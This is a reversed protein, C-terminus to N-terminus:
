RQRRAEIWREISTNSEDGVPLKWGHRTLPAPDIKPLTSASATVAMAGWTEPDLADATPRGHDAARAPPTVSNTFNQLIAQLDDSGVIGDLIGDPGSVDGQSLDGVPVQRTFNALVIQLDNVGVTFDGDLDGLITVILRPATVTFAAAANTADAILATDHSQGTVIEFTYVGLAGPQIEYDVRILGDRHDVAFPSATFNVTGHYYETPLRDTNGGANLPDPATAAPSVTAQGGGTLAVQTGAGPGELRVRVSYNLLSVSSGDDTDLVIDVSGTGAAFDPTTVVRDQGTLTITAAAGQAPARQPAAAPLVRGLDARLPQKDLDDVIADGDLDAFISYAPDGASAGLADRVPKIDFITAAGDRDVDARAADFRFEFDGGATLDGSPFQSVGDVWEGDLAAASDTATVNADDLVLLLRDTALPSSLTWVAQFAGAPGTETLFGSFAYDDNADEVGDPGLTGRLLLDSQVVNVPEDFRIIVQDADTWPLPDLQAVSGVPIAYGRAGGSGAPELADLFAGTWATGGILVSTVRPPLPVVSVTGNSTASGGDGDTVDLTVTFQGGDSPVWAVTEGVLQTTAGANPGTTLEITWTFTLPDAAGAPDTAAASLNQSTGEMGTASVNFQTITPDLNDVLVTETAIGADGDDDNVTVTATFSGSPSDDLYTHMLTFSQGTAAGSGYSLTQVNTPSTPDDWDVELTFTDTIGVDSFSGTLTATGTENITTVPDLLVAPAVGEVVLRQQAANEFLTGGTTMLDVQITYAFNDGYGHTVDGSSTFSEITGDGWNVIIEDVDAAGPGTVQGLTLTYTQQEMVTTAGSIAITPAIVANVVVPQVGFTENADAVVFYDGDYAFNTFVLLADNVGGSDDDAALENGDRDILRVVPDILSNGVTRDSRLAATLADGPAASIRFFDLDRDLGNAIAGTLSAARTNAILPVLSGALDNAFPLDAAGVGAVGDDNAESEATLLDSAGPRNITTTLAYTGVGRIMSVGDAPDLVLETDVVLYYSGDATVNFTLEADRNGEAIDDNQALEAGTADVLTLKPDELTGLGGDVGSLTATISEGNLASVRYFDAFDTLADIRANFLSRFDRNGIPVFNPDLNEALALDAVLIGDTGDDNPENEGTLVNPADADTLELDLRYAGTGPRSTGDEDIVSVAITYAGANQYTHTAQSVVGVTEMNGDGWEIEFGTPTEDGPDIVSGLELTYTAGADVTEAGTVDVTPAINLVTVDLTTSVSHTADEDVVQVTITRTADGDSYQHSAVLADFRLPSSRVHDVTLTYDGTISGTSAIVVYATLDAAFSSFELMGTSTESALMTPAGTAGPTWIEIEPATLAGSVNITLTDGDAVAVRYFDEDAASGISGTVSAGYREGAGTYTSDLTFAGRLDDAVELDAQLAGATGDDNPEGETTIADLPVNLTTSAGDGWAVVVQAPFDRGPDVLDSIALNLDNGEEVIPMSGQETTLVVDPTVNGINVNLPTADHTGEEDTATASITFAGDDVYLHTVRVAAGGFLQPVSGDGWDILWSQLTDDGPDSASLDFALLTGEDAASGDTSIGLTPAVDNVAITKQASYTGDRDTLSATITAMGDADNDAYTHEVTGSAGELASTTNDGWNIIWRAPATGLDLGNASLMLSYPTGESASDSGTLAPMPVVDTVVIQTLLERFGGDKDTITGLVPVALAGNNLLTAPVTFARNDTGEIADTLDITGDNGVDLSLTFMSDASSPDSVGTFSVTAAESETVADGTLTGTPAANEVVLTVTSFNPTGPPSDFPILGIAEPFGFTTRADAFLDFTYTGDDNIGVSGLQAWTITFAQGPTATFDATGGMSLDEGGFEVLVADADTSRPTFVLDQGESITIPDADVTPVPPMITVGVQDSFSGDDNVWSVDLTVFGNIQAFTHTFVFTQGVTAVNGPASLPALTDMTGDDWTLTVQSVPDDGPDLITLPVQFPSGAVVDFVEGPLSARAAEDTVTLTGHAVAVDNISDTVRVSIPYVGDDDIPVAGDATVAVIREWGTMGGSFSFVPDEGTADDFLGDGDLDWEVSTITTNPQKSGPIPTSAFSITSRGEGATAAALTVRTPVFGPIDEFGDYILTGVGTVTATGLPDSPQNISHPNGDTNDPLNVSGIAGPDLTDMGSVGHAQADVTVTAGVAIGPMDIFAHDDFDGLEASVSSTAALETIEFLDTGNGTKVTTTVGPIAMAIRVTQPQSDTGLVSNVHFTGGSGTFGSLTITDAGADGNLTALTAAGVVGSANITDADAGASVTVTGGLAGSLGIVDNGAGANVTYPASFGGLALNDAGDGTNVTVSGTAPATTQFITDAAAGTNVTVAEVNTFSVGHTLSSPTGDIPLRAVGQGGGVHLETDTAALGRADGISTVAKDLLVQQLTGNLDYAALTDKVSSAVFVHSGNAVMAMPADLGTVGPSGEILTALHSFGPMPPNNIGTADVIDLRDDTQSAVFLTSGSHAMSVDGEGIRLASLFFPGGFPFGPDFTAGLVDNDAGPVDVAVYPLFFGSQVVEIAKIRNGSGAGPLDVSGQSVADQLDHLKTAEAVWLNRVGQREWGVDISPSTTAFQAPTAGIGGAGNIEFIAAGTTTTVAVARNGGNHSFASLRSGATIGFGSVSDIEALTTPNLVRLTGTGDIGYLFGADGVMARLDFDPFLDPAGKSPSLMARQGDTTTVSDTDITATVQGVAEEVTLTDTSPTSGAKIKVEDAGTTRMFPLFDDTGNGDRDFRLAGVDTMWKTAVTSAANDVELLEVWVRLDDYLTGHIAAGPSAPVSVDVVDDGAGGVVDTRAGIEVVDVRDHGGQGEILLPMAVDTNITITEDFASGTVQVLGLGTMTVDTTGQVYNLVNGTQDTPEDQLTASVGATSGSLDVVLVDVAGGTVDLSQNVGTVTVLAEGAGSMDITTVLNSMQDINLTYAASVDDRGTLNVTPFGNHTITSGVSSAISTGSLHITAAASRGAEDFQVLDGSGGGGSLSLPAQVADITLANGALGDGLTVTDDGGRLNITTPETLSRVILNDSGTTDGLDLTTQVVGTADLAVHQISSRTSTPSALLQSGQLLWTNTSASGQNDHTFGVTEVNVTTLRRGDSSGTSPGVMTVDVTEAGALDRGGDVLLHRDISSHTVSNAAVGLELRVTEVTANFTPDTPTGINAVSTNGVSISPRATADNRAAYVITDAGGDGSVSVAGAIGSLVGAGVTMTDDGEGGNVAATSTTTEVILADSGGGGALLVPASATRVTFTDSASGGTVATAASFTSLVTVDGGASSQSVDITLSHNTVDIHVRDTVGDRAVVVDGSSSASSTIVPTGTGRGFDKITIISTGTGSIDHNGYGVTVADGTGSGADITVDGNEVVITDNGSGADVSLSVHDTPIRAGHEVTIADGSGGGGTVISVSDVTRDTNMLRTMLKDSGLSNSNTDIEVVAGTGSGMDNDAVARVMVVDALEAGGPATLGNFTTTGGTMEINVTHDGGPADVRDVTVSDGGDGLQLSVDEVGITTVTGAGSAAVSLVPGTKTVTVDDALEVTTPSSPSALTAGVVQMTAGSATLEDMGADGNVTDDGDAVSWLIRDNDAGGNIADGGLGGELMDAGTGGDITDAGGEGMIMDAGGGGILSDNASGGVIVDDDEDGRLVAPATGEYVLMDNGAGGSVDVPVGVTSDFYFDDDQTGGAASIRKVNEFRQQGRGVVDGSASNRGVFNVALTEGASVDNPDTPGLSVVTFDEFTSNDSTSVSGGTTYQRSSATTGAYLNLTGDAAVQGLVPPENVIGNVLNADDNPFQGSAITIKIFQISWSFKLFRFATLDFSMGGEFVLSGGVNLFGGGTTIAEFVTLNPAYDAIADLELGRVKGDYTFPATPRPVSTGDSLLFEVTGDPLDNLDFLIAGVLGASIKAGFSLIDLDLGIKAFPKISLKFALEPNDQGPHNFYSAIQGDATDPNAGFAEPLAGATPVGDTTGTTNHDDLFHGNKLADINDAVSLALFTTNTFDLQDTLLRIGGSDYGYKFNTAISLVIEIGFGAQIGIKELFTKVGGAPFGFDIEFKFDVGLTTSFSAFEVDPGGIMM